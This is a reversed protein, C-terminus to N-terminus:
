GNPKASCMELVAPIISTKLPSKNDSFMISPCTFDINFAPVCRVNGTTCSTKFYNVSWKHDSRVHFKVSKGFVTRSERYMLRLVTSAKEGQVVATKAAEGEWQVGSILRGIIASNRLRLSKEVFYIRSDGDNNNNNRNCYSPRYFVPPLNNEPRYEM